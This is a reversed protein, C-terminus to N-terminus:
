IALGLVQDSSSGAVILLWSRLCVNAPRDVTVFPALGAAVAVVVLSDIGRTLYTRPELQTPGASPSPM